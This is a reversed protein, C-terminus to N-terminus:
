STQASATEKDPSREEQSSVQLYLRGTYCDASPMVRTHLIDKTDHQLTIVYDLLHWHKSCPHRWTAKFRDKQQFLTNTIVLQHESCFELPLHENDSCNGTGHRGLVGKWLEFDRGVRTNLRRLYPTQTQLLSAAPPRPQLGGVPTYMSLVTAFKNQISLRLSVIRDSRGVPLNQLKRAISTKIMFGVGYLLREDKNKGSWFLTYGAGDERLSGQEAFRAESLTAIDIDLEAPERGM